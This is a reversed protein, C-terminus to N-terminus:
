GFINEFIKDDEELCRKKLLNYKQLLEKGEETLHSGTQKDRHVIPKDFYQETAKIKGWVGKYSMKLLKATQNLSGTQEVTELIKKRGEGIIIRDRDDTIWQRSKLKLKTMNDGGGSGDM